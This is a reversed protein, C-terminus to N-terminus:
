RTQGTPAEFEALVTDFADLMEETTFGAPFGVSTTTSRLRALRDRDVLLDRLSTVFEEFSGPDVLVGSTGDQVFERIGGVDTCFAPTGVAVAEMVTLPIGEVSSTLVLLDAAAVLGSPNELHGVLQLTGAPSPRCEGDGTMAFDAVGSLQKAAEVFWEPRKESSHRGLWVCLPLEPRRALMEPLRPAPAPPDIGIYVPRVASPVQFHKSLLDALRRSVPVMVDISDAHMTTSAIHGIHNFLLDIVTTPGPCWSRCDDIHDYIWTAGIVVIHASALGTLIRKMVSGYDDRQVINPLNYFYPTSEGVLETGDASNPPPSEFAVMVVTHGRQRLGAALSRAVQEGGGLRTMWPVALVVPRRSGVDFRSPIDVLSSPSPVAVPREPVTRGALGPYMQSIRRQFDDYNRSGADRGETASYRYRFLVERILTSRHGAAALAAWLGWDECNEAFKASFGGVEFFADRRIVACVPLANDYALVDPWLEGPHWLFDDDGFGRVYPAVVSLEPRAELIIVAKEFYTPEIIDDPDLCCLYRGTSRAAAANRAAIVGQNEANVVIIRRDSLAEVRALVLPTLDDPSGDNWIVLEWRDLTQDIVCQVSEELTTAKKYAPM